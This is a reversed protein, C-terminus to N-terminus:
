ADDSRPRAGMGVIGGAALGHAMFGHAWWAVSWSGYGGFLVPVM